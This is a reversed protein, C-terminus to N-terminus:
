EGTQGPILSRVYGMLGGSAADGADPGDPHRETVEELPVCPIANRVAQIAAEAAPGDARIEVVDGARLGLHYVDPARGADARKGAHLLVVKADHQALFQALTAAHHLQVGYHDTIKISATPM